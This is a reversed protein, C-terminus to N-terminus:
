NVQSKIFLMLFDKKKFKRVLASGVMGTHGAIYIKKSKNM